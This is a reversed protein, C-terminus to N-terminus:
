VRDPTSRVRSFASRRSAPAGGTPLDCARDIAALVFPAAPRDLGRPRVFREVFRLREEVETADDGALAYRLQEVHEDLSRAIRVIGGTDAAIYRFHLTGEQGERFQPTLLTLVPRGVIASEVLATTNIGVVASSHYVADFLEARDGPDGPTGPTRPWTSFRAGLRSFDHTNWDEITTPYPRVLIQLDRFDSDRGSLLERAWGAVFEPEEQGTIRASSGAYLVFPLEPRLGVRRCYEDRNTQPSSEFWPDLSQAGVIVVQSPSLGHMEVAERFQHDNWVAVFGPQEHFPEKNSLNDWSTALMGTPIGLRHAARLYDPQISQQLLLPSVLVLDPRFDSVMAGVEPPIPIARELASLMRQLARRAFGIRLIGLNDLGRLLRPASRRMRAQLGPSGTFSPELYFLFDLSARLRGVLTRARLRETSAPGVSIGAYQKLLATTVGDEISHAQEVALHVADGRAALLALTPEFHLVQNRSDMVFLVRV